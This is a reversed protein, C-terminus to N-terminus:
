LVGNWSETPSPIEKRTRIGVIETETVYAEITKGELEAPHAVGLVSCSGELAAQEFSQVYYRDRQKYVAVIDAGNTYVKDVRVMTTTAQALCEKYDKNWVWTKWDMLKTSLAM